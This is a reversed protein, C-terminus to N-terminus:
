QVCFIAPRSGWGARYTIRASWLCFLGPTVEIRWVPACTPMEVEQVGSERESNL